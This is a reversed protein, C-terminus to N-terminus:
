KRAGPDNSSITRIVKGSARERLIYRRGGLVDAHLVLTSRNKVYHPVLERVAFIMARQGEIAAVLDRRGEAAFKRRREELVQTARDYYGRIQEVSGDPLAIDGLRIWPSANLPDAAALALLNKRLAERDRSHDVNYRAFERRLDDSEAGNSVLFWEAESHLAGLSVSLRYEGPHLDGLVFKASLRDGARLTQRADSSVWEPHVFIIDGGKRKLEVSVHNWWEESPLVRSVPAKNQGPLLAAVLAVEGKVQSGVFIVRSPTEDDITRIAFTDISVRLQTVLQAAVTNVTLTTILASILATRLSKM